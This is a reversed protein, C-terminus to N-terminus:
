VTDFVIMQSTSEGDQEVNTAYRSMIAANEKRCSM